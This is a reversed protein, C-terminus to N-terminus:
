VRSLPYGPAVIRRRLHSGDDSGFPHSGALWKAEHIGANAPIVRSKRDRRLGGGRKM